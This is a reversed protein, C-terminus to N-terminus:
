FDDVEEDIEEDFEDDESVRMALFYLLTTDGLKSFRAEARLPHDKKFSFKIIDRPDLLTSMKGLWELFTLSYRDM